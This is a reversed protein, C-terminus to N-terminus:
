NKNLKLAYELIFTDTYMNILTTVFQWFDLIVDIVSDMM